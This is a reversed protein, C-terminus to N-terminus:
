VNLYQNDCLVNENVFFKLHFPSKQYHEAYLNLVIKILLM